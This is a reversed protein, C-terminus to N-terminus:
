FTVCHLKALQPSTVPILSPTASLQLSHLLRPFLYYPLPSRRSFKAPPLFLALLPVPYWPCVVRRCRVRPYLPLRLSRQHRNCTSPFQPFRWPAFSRLVCSFAAPTPLQYRRHDACFGSDMYKQYHARVSVRYRHPYCRLFSPFYTTPPPLSFFLHAVRYQIRPSRPRFRLHYM